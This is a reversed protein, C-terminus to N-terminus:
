KTAATTATIKPIAQIASGATTPTQQIPTKLSPSKTAPETLQIKETAQNVNGITEQGFLTNQYLSNKANVGRKLIVTTAAGVM